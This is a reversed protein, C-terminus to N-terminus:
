FAFRRRATARFLISAAARGHPRGTESSFARIFFGPM